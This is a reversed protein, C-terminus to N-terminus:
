NMIMFNVDCNANPQEAVGLTEFTITASGAGAQVSLQNGQTIGTSVLTLVIISNATIQSNTLVFSSGSNDKRFRGIPSNITAADGATTNIGKTTVTYGLSNVLGAVSASSSIVANGTVDLVATPTKVTSGIVVSETIHASGNTGIGWSTGFTMNTGVIQKEFFAGYPNTCSSTGLASIQRQRFYYAYDTTINGTSRGSAAPTLRLYPINTSATLSSSGQGIFDIEPTSGTTQTGKTILYNAGGVRFDTGFAGNLITSVTSGSIAYNATSNLQSNNTNNFWIAPSLNSREGLDIFSNGQRIRVSGLATTNSVITSNGMYVSGAVTLTESNDSTTNIGVQGTKNIRMKVSGSGTFFGLDDNSYTGLQVRTGGANALYIGLGALSNTFVSHYGSNTNDNSHFQFGNVTPSNYWISGNVTTSTAALPSLVFAGASTFQARTVSNTKITLADNSNTGLYELGSSLTNGSLNWTTNTFSSTADGLGRIANYIQRNDSNTFALTSTYTTMSNPLTMTPAAIRAGQYMQLLDSNFFRMTQTYSSTTSQSFSFVATILAAFLFYLKTKKM